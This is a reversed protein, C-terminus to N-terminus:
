EAQAGNRSASAGSGSEAGSTAAQTGSGTAGAGSPTGTSESKTRQMKWMQALRETLRGVLEAETEKRVRDLDAQSAGGGVGSAAAASGAGDGSGAAGAFGEGGGMGVPLWPALEAWEPSNANAAAELSQEAVEVSQGFPRDPRYVYLPFSGSSVAHVAADYASRPESAEAPESALVRLFFPHGAELLEVLAPGLHEPCVPSSQVAAGVSGVAALLPWPSLGTSGSNSLALVGAAGGDRLVQAIEGLHSVLEEERAVLVIPPVVRREETTLEKWPLALADPSEPAADRSTVIREAERCVAAERGARDAHSAVLGAWVKVADDATEARLPGFIPHSPFRSVWEVGSTAVLGLRARGAGLCGTDEKWRLDHIRRAIEVVRSLSTGDLKGSETATRLGHAVGELDANRGAGAIANALADLDGVPVSDALQGRIREGLRDALSALSQRHEIVRPQHIAEIATVVWRLALAGLSGPLDRRGAFSQTVYRSLMRAPVVGLTAEAAHIVAGSTDGTSQLEAWDTRPGRPGMQVSEPECVVACLGCSTCADPDVAIGLLTRNKEAADTWFVDTRGRAPTAAISAVTEAAGLLANREDDGQPGNKEIWEVVAARVIEQLAIAASESEQIKSAVSQAIQRAGRRLAGASGGAKDMAQELLQAPSLAQAQIASEPCVSWCASCGTCTSMDFTPLPADPSSVTPQSRLFATTLVPRAGAIRGPEPVLSALGDEEWPRVAQQWSRAPDIISGDGTVEGLAAPAEAALVRVTDRPTGTSTDASGAGGAALREAVTNMALVLAETRKARDDPEFEKLRQALHSRIPREALKAGLDSRRAALLALVTGLTNADVKWDPEGETQAGRLLSVVDDPLVVDASHPRQAWEMWDVPENEPLAVLLERPGVATEVERSRVHGGLIGHLIGAVEHLYSLGPRALIRVSQAADAGGSGRKADQKGGRGASGGATASSPSSASIGLEVAEAHERRLGAHLAERHPRAPERPALDWGVIASAGVSGNRNAGSDGRGNGRKGRPARALAESVDAPRLPMEGMSAIWHTVEAREDGHRRLADQVMATLISSGSEASWVLVSKAGHLARACAAAPFPAIRRLAVIRRQEAEAVGLLDETMAGIAVIAEPADAKGGVWVPEQELGLPTLADPFALLDANLYLAAALRGAAGSAGDSRGDTGLPRDFDFWGPVATRTPGFLVEESGGASPRRAEPSEFLRRVEGLDPVIVDQIAHGLSRGEYAVVAPLLTRESIWRLEVSLDVLDQVSRAVSVIAGTAALAPLDATDRVSTWVLFPVRTEAARGITGLSDGVGDPLHLCIRDGALARGLAVGADSCVRAQWAEALWTLALDARVVEVAGPRPTKKDGGRFWPFRFESM